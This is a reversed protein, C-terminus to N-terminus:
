ASKKAKKAALIAARDTKTAKRRYEVLLGHGEACDTEEIHYVDGQFVANWWRTWAFGGSSGPIPTMKGDQVAKVLRKHENDVAKRAEAIDLAAKKQTDTLLAQLKNLQNM